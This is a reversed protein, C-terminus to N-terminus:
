SIYFKTNYIKQMCSCYWFLYYYLFKSSRLHKGFWSSMSQFPLCKSWIIVKAFRKIKLCCTFNGTTFIFVAGSPTFLHGIYVINWNLSCSCIPIWWFKKIKKESRFSSIRNQVYEFFKDVIIIKFLGLNLWLLYKIFFFFVFLGVM